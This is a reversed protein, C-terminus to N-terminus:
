RQSRVQILFLAQLLLNFLMDAIIKSVSPFPHPKRGSVEFALDAIDQVPSFPFSLCNM